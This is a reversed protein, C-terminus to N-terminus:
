LSRLSPALRDGMGPLDRLSREEGERKRESRTLSAILAERTFSSGRLRELFGTM